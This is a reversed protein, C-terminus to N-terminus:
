RQPLQGGSGRRYELRKAACADRVAMWDDGRAGAACIRQFEDVRLGGRGGVVQGSLWQLCQEKRRLLSVILVGARRRDDETGHGFALADAAANVKEVPTM